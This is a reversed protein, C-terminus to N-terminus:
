DKGNRPIVPLGGPTRDDQWTKKIKSEDFSVPVIKEELFGKEVAQGILAGIGRELSKQNVGTLSAATQLVQGRYKEDVNKEVDLIAAVVLPIAEAAKLRPDKGPERSSEGPNQHNERHTKKFM